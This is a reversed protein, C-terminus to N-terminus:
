LKKTFTVMERYVIDEPLNDNTAAIKALEACRKENISKVSNDQTSEFTVVHIACVKLLRDWLDLNRITKKKIANKNLAIWGRFWGENMAKVLYDSNSWLTVHCAEKLAELGVIAAMITMRIHMTRSCGGSLEKQHTGYELIAAYGGPCKSANCWGNTYINVEKLQIALEGVMIKSEKRFQKQIKDEPTTQVLPKKGLIIAKLLKYYGRCIWDEKTYPIDIEAVKEITTKLEKWQEKGVPNLHELGKGFHVREHCVACLLMTREEVYNLHHLHLLIKSRCVACEFPLKLEAWKIGRKYPIRNKSDIIGNLLALVKINHKEVSSTKMDTNVVVDM